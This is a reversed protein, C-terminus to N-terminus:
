GGIHLRLWHQATRTCKRGVAINDDAALCPLAAAARCAREGTRSSFCDVWVSSTVSDVLHLVGESVHTYSSDTVGDCAHAADSGLEALAMSVAM